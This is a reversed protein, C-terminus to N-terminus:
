FLAFKPQMCAQLQTILVHSDFARALSCGPLLLQIINGAAALLLPGVAFLWGLKHCCLLSVTCASVLPSHLLLLVLDLLSRVRVASAEHLQWCLWVARGAAM